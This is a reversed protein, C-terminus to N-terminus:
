PSTQTPIFYKTVLASDLGFEESVMTLNEYMNRKNNDWSWDDDHVHQLNGLLAIHPVLREPLVGRSHLQAVDGNLHPVEDDSLLVGVACREGTPTRYSCKDDYVAQEKMSALHQVVTDFIEQATLETM